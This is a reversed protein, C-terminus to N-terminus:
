CECSSMLLCPLGCGDERSGEGTRRVETLRETITARVSEATLNNIFSVERVKSTENEAKRAIALLHAKQRQEAQGLRREYMQEALALRAIRRENVDKMRMAAQQRRYQRESDLNARNLDAMFQKEDLRRKAEAPTPKKREPSSLKDRLYRRNLAFDLGGGSGNGQGAQGARVPSTPPSDFSSKISGCPSRLGSFWSPTGEEEEEAAANDELFFSSDNGVGDDDGREEEEDQHGPIILPATGFNIVDDEGEGM